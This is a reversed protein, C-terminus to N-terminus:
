NRRSGPRSSSGTLIPCSTMAPSPPPPSSPTPAHFSLNSIWCARDPLVEVFVAHRRQTLQSLPGFEGVLEKEQNARERIDVFREVEVVELPHDGDRKLRLGPLRVVVRLRSTAKPRRQSGGCLPRHGRLAAVACRRAHGWRREAEPVADDCEMVQYCKTVDATLWSSVYKLGDPALWGRERFVAASDKFTEVIMHVTYGVQSGAGRGYGVALIHNLWDYQEAATELLPGDPLLPDVCRDSLRPHHRPVLRLDARRRPDRAHHPRGTAALRRRTRAVLRRRLAVRSRPGSFSGNKVVVIRRRGSPTAGVDQVDVDMTIEYLLEMPPWAPPMIRLQQVMGLRDFLGWKKEVIRGRAVRFIAMEAM